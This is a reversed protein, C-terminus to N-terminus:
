LKNESYRIDFVSRQIDFNQASSFEVNIKFM